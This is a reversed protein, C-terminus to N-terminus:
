YRRFSNLVEVNGCKPCTISKTNAGVYIATTVPITQDKVFYGFGCKSCKHPSNKLGFNGDATLYPECYEPTVFKPYIQSDISKKQMELRSLIDNIEKKKEDEVSALTEKTEIILNNLDNEINLLQQNKEAILNSFLTEYKTISEKIMEKHERSQRYILVAAIITVITFLVGLIAILIGYPNWWLSLQSNTKELIEQYNKLILPDIARSSNSITDEKIGNKSIGVYPLILILSVFVSLSFKFM